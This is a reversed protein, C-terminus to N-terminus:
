LKYTRYKSKKKKKKKQQDDIGAASTSATATTMVDETDSTAGEARQETNEHVASSEAYAGKGEMADNDQLPELDILSPVAAMDGCYMYALKTCVLVYRCLKNARWCVGVYSAGYPLSFNAVRTASIEHVEYGPIAASSLVCTDARVDQDNEDDSPEDAGEMWEQKEDDWVLRSGDNAVFRKKGEDGKVPM